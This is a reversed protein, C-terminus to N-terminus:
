HKPSISHSRTSENINCLICSFHNKAMQQMRPSWVWHGGIVRSVLGEHAFRNMGREKRDGIGLSHLCTINRPYGTSLFRNEVAEHLTSAEVLGGGGGVLGVTDGDKILSAADDSSIFIDRM